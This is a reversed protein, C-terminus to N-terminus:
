ELEFTVSVTARVAMQGIPITRGEEDEGGADAQAQSQSNQGWSQRWYGASESINRPQGRKVGLENCLADAKERAARVAMSRARDRHKRLESTQYNVGQIENAGNTLAQEVLKELLKVDKLTIMFGRRAIYGDIGRSVEGNDRYRIKVELTETQVHREEVGLAAIAALLKKAADANASKAKQLDPDFTEVGLSVVVENPVVYVTAEGSTTITRPEVDARAASCIAAVALVLFVAKMSREKSCTSAFM